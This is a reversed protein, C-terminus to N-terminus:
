RVAVALLTADDEFGATAFRRVDDAVARTSGPVTSTGTAHSRRPWGSKASSRAM